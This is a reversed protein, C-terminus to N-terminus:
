SKSGLVERALDTVHILFNPYLTLSENEVKGLVTDTHEDVLWNKRFIVKARDGYLLLEPRLSLSFSGPEGFGEITKNELGVTKVMAKAFNEILGIEKSTLRRGKKAKVALSQALASSKCMACYRVTDRWSLPM